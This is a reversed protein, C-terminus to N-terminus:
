FPYGIIETDVIKIVDDPIDAIDITTAENKRPNYFGLTRIDQFMDHISHLGMRWYMLLQLSHNATLSGRFVKMDWLGTRTLFDGDGASVLDTYGGEFDFGNATAPYVETFFTVSREVMRRINETTENNPLTPTRYVHPGARFISDFSALIVANTISADSLDTPMADPHIELDMGLREAIMLGHISPAFATVPDDGLMVRTLYDVALGVLPPETNEYPHLDVGDYKQVSMHRIPLYGGHPQKIQKIRGTVSTM